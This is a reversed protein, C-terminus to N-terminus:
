GVKGYEKGASATIGVALAVLMMSWILDHNSSDSSVTEPLYDAL